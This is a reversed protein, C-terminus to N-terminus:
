LGFGNEINQTLEDVFQAMQVGDIVDHDILITINLAERIKIEDDIVLPKKLISGIGFSIPHVATHIFWGKITGMMGISSVVVNGMKKFAIKPHRLMYKWIMKRIFAPFNYYMRELLTSKKKLVIDKNTFKESKADVIEKTIEEITKENTKEIVLPIPVKSNELEKEIVISINIDNFVIIKRKDLLYGAAKQYNKISESISKLIWATFSIKRNQKKLNKIKLRSDTVDIELLFCVHHKMKGVACVDFTAIRTKPFKLIKYNNM